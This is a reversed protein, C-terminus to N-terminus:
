RWTERRALLAHMCVKLTRLGDALEEGLQVDIEQEPVRFKGVREGRMGDKLRREDLLAQKAAAAALREREARAQAKKLAPLALLSARQMRLAKAAM